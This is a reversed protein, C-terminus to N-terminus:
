RCSGQSGHSATPARRDITFLIPAATDSCAKNVVKIRDHDGNERASRRIAEAAEPIPEIAVIRVVGPCAAAVNVFEGVNAGVDVFQMKLSRPATAFVTKLFLKTEPENSVGIVLLGYARGIRHDFFLSWGELALLRDKKLLSLAFGLGKLNSGFRRKMFVYLHCYVKVLWIM